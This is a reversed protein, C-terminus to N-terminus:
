LITGMWESIILNDQKLLGLEEVRCQSVEVVWQGDILSGVVRCQTLTSFGAFDSGM